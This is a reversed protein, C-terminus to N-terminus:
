FTRLATDAQTAEDRAADYETTATGALAEYADAVAKGPTAPLAKALALVKKEQENYRAIAANASAINGALWASNSQKSIGLLAVKSDIVKVYRDFGAEPFDTAAQSFYTEADRFRAEAQEALRTSLTVSAKTLKNYEVVSQDSLKEAALMITWGQQAPGIASGAKVNADLIVAAPDLMKLRAAVSAQLLRAHRQEDETVKDMADAILRQCEELDSRASALRPELESAQTAVASSVESRVVEDVDLVVGDARELLTTASDLDRAGQFRRSIAGSGIVAATGLVVVVGIVTAIVARRSLRRYAQEMHSPTPEQSTDNQGQPEDTV